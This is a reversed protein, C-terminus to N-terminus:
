KQWVQSQATTGDAFHVVVCYCQDDEIQDMPITYRKPSHDGRTTVTGNEDITTTDASFSLMREDVPKKYFDWRDTSWDKCENYSVNTVLTQVFVPADSQIAVSSNSNGNPLVLDYTGSNQETGTYYYRPISSSYSDDFRVFKVFTSNGEPSYKYTIKKDSYSTHSKYEYSWSKDNPNFKYVGLKMSPSSYIVVDLKKSTITWESSSRDVSEWDPAM